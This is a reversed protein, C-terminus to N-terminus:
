SELVHARLETPCLMPNRIRPDCTRIRGPTGSKEGKGREASNPLERGFDPNHAPKRTSAKEPEPENERGDSESCEAANPTDRREAYQVLYQVQDKQGAGEATDTTGTKRLEVAQAEPEKTDSLGLSKLAARTDEVRLHTYHDMTLTITSHRALTKAVAPSAGSRALRTIFTHRLGHFDVCGASTEDALFDSGFRDYCEEATESEKLWSDRAEELDEQLMESTRPTLPRFLPADPALERVYEAVASALEPRIPLTDARRNKAYAARIGVTPKDGDTLDFSEPTLSRLESRRLGTELAIRYLMARQPGTLGFRVPGGATVDLLRVIEADTLARREHRRNVKANLKSVQVMPDVAIRGQTLMWRTFSKFHTLINNIRVAGKGQACLDSVYASVRLSDIDAPTKFSCAGAVQRICAIKEMVHKATNGKAELYAKFGDPKRTGDSKETGDLHDTLPIRRFQALRDQTPDIVGEMRLAADAELKNAIRQTADKDMCGTKVRPKGDGDKYSILWKGKGKRKFVSAM